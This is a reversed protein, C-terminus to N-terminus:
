SHRWRRRRPMPEAKGTFGHTTMHRTFTRRSVVARRGIAGVFVHDTRALRVVADYAADFYPKLAIPSGEYSRVTIEIFVERPIAKKAM